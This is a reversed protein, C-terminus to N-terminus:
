QLYANIAQTAMHDFDAFVAAASRQPQTDLWWTLVGLLGNIVFTVALDLRDQDTIALRNRLHTTLVDRLMSRGTRLALNTARAGLMAHFLTRNDEAHEFLPWLPSMLSTSPTHRPDPPDTSIHARLAAEVEHLGSLFLEDKSQYHHYFTSRGVDARDLIDQVTVHDYGRELILEILATHLLTRTRRVRRDATADPAM